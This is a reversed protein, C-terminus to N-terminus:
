TAPPPPPPEDAGPKWALPEDAPSSSAEPTAPTASAPADPSVPTPPAQAAPRPPAPEQARARAVIRYPKGIWGYLGFIAGAALPVVIATVINLLWVNYQWLLVTAGLGFLLGSFFGLIPHGRRWLNKSWLVGGRPATAVVGGGGGAGFIPMAPLPLTLIAVACMVCGRKGRRIMDIQADIADFIDPEGSAADDADAAALAKDGEELITDMPGRGYSGSPTDPPTREAAASQIQDAKWKPGARRRPAVVGGLAGVATIGAAAIGIPKTLPNGDLEVYGVFKCKWGSGTNTIEAKYTGVGYKLYDDIKVKSSSWTDGDGSHDETTIGGIPDILFVEVHTKNPGSKGSPTSGKASVTSHKKVKLPHDSTIKAAPRGNASGTCGGTPADAAATGALAILVGIGALMLVMSWTRITGPRLGPRHRHVPDTTVRRVLPNCRLLRSGTMAFAVPLARTEFAELAYRSCTPEFRCVGAM